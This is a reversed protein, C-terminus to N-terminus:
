QSTEQATAARDIDCELQMYACRHCMFGDWIALGSTKRIDRYGLNLKEFYALLHAYYEKGERGGVPWYLSYIPIIGRSCLDAAGELALDAASEWSMAFEPELEVGAVMASYVREDGWLSVANELAEIWRQYGVFRNKGPCVRAFLPESWVELNFCVNQVLDEDHLRQLSEPPLAGSGCSVPIRGEVTKQVERALEIFRTGEQRWDTLSGGVLYIHRIGSEGIAAALAERMRTITEPPLSVRDMDQGLARSRADPAGYSCFTCRMSRGDRRDALFYQCGPAINVVAMDGHLSVGAEALTAGNGTTRSMWRPLPEFEIPIAPAGDRALSYGGDRDGSVSWPSEGNGKIRIHTDNQTALLYPITAMGRGTPDDEGPQFRYPFFNPFAHQAARGLAESYRIGEFMLDLKLRAAPPLSEPIM